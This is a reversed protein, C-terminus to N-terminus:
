AQTHQEELVILSLFQLVYRSHDYSNSRKNIRPKGPQEVRSSKRSTKRKRSQRRYTQSGYGTKRGSLAYRKDMNAIKDKQPYFNRGSKYVQKKDITPRGQSPRMLRSNSKSKQEMQKKMFSNLNAMNKQKM